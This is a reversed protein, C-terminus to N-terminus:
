LVSGAGSLITLVLVSSLVVIQGIPHARLWIHRVGRKRERWVLTHKMIFLLMLTCVLLISVKQGWNLGLYAKVPVSTAIGEVIGGLDSSSAESIAPKATITQTKQTTTENVPTSQEEKVPTTDAPKATPTKEEEEVATPQTTEVTSPTPTTAQPAPTTKAPAPAPAVQAGYMAVVLTTESGLLVGNVAALGIDKYQTNLINDRHTQSAMWGAVVGGSTNFGKALNEGATSYNYGAAYIFSWPTTGDPAVHAWYDNAFMHNAKALAASNLKSNLNLAGLGNADREQNTLSYLDSVSINTAYGLVQMQKASTVNYLFPITIFLALFIMLGIPRLAIPHYKNKKNPILWHHITM